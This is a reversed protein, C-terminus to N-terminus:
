TKYREYEDRCDVSCWRRKDKVPEKCWLCEGTDNEGIKTDVTRMTADLAKQVQDNAIDIEDSLVFM